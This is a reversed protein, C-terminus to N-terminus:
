NTACSHKKEPSLGALAAEFTEQARKSDRQNQVWQPPLVLRLIVAWMLFFVGLFILVKM